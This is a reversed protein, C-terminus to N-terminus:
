GTEPHTFINPLMRVLGKAKFWHIYTTYANAWTTYGKETKKGEKKEQKKERKKKLVWAGDRNRNNLSLFCYIKGNETCTMKARRAKQLPIRCICFNLDARNLVWLQHIRERQLRFYTQIYGCMGWGSDPVEKKDWNRGEQDMWRWKKWIRESSKLQM